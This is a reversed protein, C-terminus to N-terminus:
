VDIPGAIWHSEQKEAPARAKPKKKRKNVFRGRPASSKIKEQWEKAASKEWDV